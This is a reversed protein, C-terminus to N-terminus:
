KGWINKRAWDKKELVALTERAEEVAKAQEYWRKTRFFNLLAQMKDEGFKTWLRAQAREYPDSPLLPHVGPWTEEIYELIVVSEANSKGGHILVPVKKHVPNYKLLLESKNFIDEEIYEFELGKLKLAWIVRYVYPSAFFGFLKLDEKTTM